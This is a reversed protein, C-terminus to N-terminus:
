GILIGSVGWTSMLKRDLREIIWPALLMRVTLDATRSVDNLIKKIKFSVLNTFHLWITLSLFFNQSFMQTSMNKSFIM